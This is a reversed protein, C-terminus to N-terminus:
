IIYSSLTAALACILPVLVSVKDTIDKRIDRLANTLHNEVTRKSIGFMRAIENNPVGKYRSLRFIHQRQRPMKSLASEIRENLESANMDENVLDAFDESSYKLRDLYRHKVSESDFHDLVANRLMSFLYSSFSSVKSITDRKLYVKIFTDQVIDKATEEDKVLAYVFNYSKGVYANYILAFAKEDGRKLAALLQEEQFSIRNAM